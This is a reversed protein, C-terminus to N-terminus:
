SSPIARIAACTSFRSAPRACPRWARFSRFRPRITRFKAEIYKGKHKSDPNEEKKKRVKHFTSTQGSAYISSGDRTMCDVFETWFSNVLMEYATGRLSKQTIDLIPQLDNSAFSLLKGYLTTLPETRAETAKRTITKAMFPRVFQERVLWEAVQTQDILAYTRLCQTLSQKTTHHLKGTQM